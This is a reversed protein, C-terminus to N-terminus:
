AARKLLDSENLNCVGGIGEVGKSHRRQSKRCATIECRLALNLDPYEFRFGSDLLRNPVLRYNNLLSNVKGRGLLLRVLFSPFRLLASRNLSRGVCYGFERNTVARPATVNVPGVLSEDQLVHGIARVADILSVWSIYQRGSGIVGGLGLRFLRMMGPLVGGLHSLITGFRLHVVRVGLTALKEAQLELDEILEAEYDRGPLEWDNLLKKGTDYHCRSPPVFVFGRPPKEMLRITECWHSVSRLCNSRCKHKRRPTWFKGSIVQSSFYVIFDVGKLAKGRRYGEKLSWDAQRSGSRKRFVQIVEHGCDRLHQCVARDLLSGGGIVAIRSPGFM